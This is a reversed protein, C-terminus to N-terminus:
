AVWRVPVGRGSIMGLATMRGLIQYYAATENLTRLNLVDDPRDFAPDQNDQRFVLAGRIQALEPVDWFRDALERMLDVDGTVILRPGPKDGTVSFVPGTLHSTDAHPGFSITDFDFM